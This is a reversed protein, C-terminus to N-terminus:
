YGRKRKRSDDAAGIAHTYVTALGHHPGFIGDYPHRWQDSTSHMEVMHTYADMWSDVPNISHTTDRRGGCAHSTSEYAYLTSAYGGAIKALALPLHSTATIAALTDDSCHKRLIYGRKSGWSGSDWTGAVVDYAAVDVDTALTQHHHAGSCENTARLFEECQANFFTQLHCQASRAFHLDSALANLLVARCPCELYARTTMKEGNPIQPCADLARCAALADRATVACVLKGCASM